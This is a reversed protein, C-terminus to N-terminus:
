PAEKAKEDDSGMREKIQHAAGKILAEQIRKDVVAKIILHSCVGLIAAWGMFVDWAVEQGFLRIFLPTVTVSIGVHLAWLKVTAREEYAAMVAAGIMAGAVAAVALPYKLLFAILGTSSPEMISQKGMESAGFAEATILIAAFLMWAIVISPM